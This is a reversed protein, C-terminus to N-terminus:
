TSRILRELTTFLRNCNPAVDRNRLKSSDVRQLLEPAHRTKNYKGKSTGRTAGELGRIVDDKSIQEVAPNRPLRNRQFRNGYFRELTSIDALFWSEMVQVMFHIQSDQVGTGLEKNWTSRSRISRILNGDDRSDSDVLLIVLAEPYDRVADFFDRITEETPGGAIANFGIRQKRALDIAPKLFAELGPRLRRDGEFYIRIQAVM